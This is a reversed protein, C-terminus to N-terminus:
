IQSFYLNQRNAKVNSYYLNEINKFSDGQTKLYKREIKQYKENKALQLTKNQDILKKLEM